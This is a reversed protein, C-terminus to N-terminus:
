RSKRSAKLRASASDLRDIMSRFSALSVMSTRKPRSSFRKSGVSRYVTKVM